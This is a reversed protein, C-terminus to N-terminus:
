LLTMMFRGSKCEDGRKSKGGGGDKSLGSGGRTLVIVVDVLALGSLLITDGLADLAAL